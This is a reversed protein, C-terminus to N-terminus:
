QGRLRKKSNFSKFTRDEHYRNELFCIGNIESFTENKEFSVHKRILKFKKFMCSVLMQYQRLQKYDSLTFANLHHFNQAENESLLIVSFKLHWAFHITYVKHTLSKVLNCIENKRCQSFYKNCIVSYKIKFAWTTHVFYM